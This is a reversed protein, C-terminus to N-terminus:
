KAAKVIWNVIFDFRELTLAHGGEYQKISIQQGANSKKYEAEAKKYIDMADKSYKDEAASVILFKTPCIECVVDDIDYYKTFNPIVSAMEIGVNNKIRNRFTVASGSACAYHIRKDFAALYITTNGGYSHGLCGIKNHDVCDLGNLVSIAGMADEIVVKALTQGTLIGYCMTLFHQLDDDDNKNVGSANARRDEFCLSDPAIVVFGKEALAPGFAQLPNGALGCVESKGLNREGNHQHNILIAPHKGDSDPLLLFAINKRGRVFYQILERKYGNCQSIELIEYEIKNSVPELGILKIMKECNTSM